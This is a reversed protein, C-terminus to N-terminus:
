PQQAQYTYILLSDKQGLIRYFKWKQRPYPSIKAINQVFFSIKKEYYYKRALAEFNSKSLNIQKTEFIQDNQKLLFRETQIHRRAPEAFMGFRYFPFIDTLFVFPLWLFFLCLCLLM